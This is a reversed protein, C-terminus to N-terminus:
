KGGNTVIQELMSLATQLAEEDMSGLLARFRRVDDDNDPSLYSSSAKVFNRAYQMVSKVSKVAENRLHWMQTIEQPSLKDIPKDFRKFDFM